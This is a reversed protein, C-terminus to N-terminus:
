SVDESAYGIPRPRGAKERQRSDASRFTEARRMWNRWAAPWDKFTSGKSRHYDLFCMTERDMRDTPVGEDAAWKRMADTPKFSDPAPTAFTRKRRSGQENGQESSQETHGVSVKEEDAQCTKGGSHFTERQITKDLCTKDVRLTYLSTHGRGRGHEIVILGRTTLSHLARRVTSESHGTLEVINRLSPYCSLNDSSARFALANLVAREHAGLGTHSMVWAWRSLPTM